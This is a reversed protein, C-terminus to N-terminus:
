AKAGVYPFNDKVETGWRNMIARHENLTQLYTPDNALNVMEGPDNVLDVLAERNKGESYVCYKYRDTRVMRGEPTYDKGDVPGGQVLHNSTVVFQRKAHRVRGTAVPLLSEGRVVTTPTIGAFDCLTPLMDVGTNMLMDSTGPKIRAPYSIMFPVRAAEEFLVTKQNFFHAGQCEGHDGTFLVLTNDELKQEALHTTVKGILRDVREVVRYYAWEYQRWKADDWGGVPFLPSNHYARRMIGMIEPEDKMIGHNARLPPCQDPPPPEGIAGQNMTEGRAWQCINHPNLFSAVAFFPADHPQSLFANVHDATEVDVIETAMHDFGNISAAGETSPYSYPLHWKGFYATRYGADRFLTAMCPFVAPDPARESGHNTEEDTDNTEIATEVPYRGTFMSTRSPVCLPNAVYARSFYMGKARLADLNPTNLYHNGITSSLADFSIQDSFIILINPRKTTESALMRSSSALAACAATSIFQRRDLTRM